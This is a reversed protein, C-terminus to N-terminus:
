QVLLLAVLGGLGDSVIAVGSPVVWDKGDVLLNFHYTGPQVGLTGIWVDQGISRLPHPQWQDWDGGIAVSAAGPMRFRVVVSDGVRQPMLIPYVPRRVHAPRQRHTFVRIGATVFGGRPLGQYPDPLYSGGGLEIAVRSSPFVQVLVSGAAKSVYTSSLRTVAWVSSRVVGTSATIGTGVDTFWAGIFHTPEISITSTVAGFQRWARLRSSFATVGPETSIWGGYPGAGVAVGGLRATWVAEAIGRAAATWGGDSRTTGSVIGEVAVQLRRVLPPSAIWVDGRGQSSWVGLPLSALLGSLDVMANAADFRIDPSFTVTSTTLGGPYRVTGAGVALSAQAQSCASRPALVMLACACVLAHPRILSM